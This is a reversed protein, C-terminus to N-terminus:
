RQRTREWGAAKYLWVSVSLRQNDRKIEARSVVMMVVENILIDLLKSAKSRPAQSIVVYRRVYLANMMIEAFILSIKPRLTAMTDHLMQKRM